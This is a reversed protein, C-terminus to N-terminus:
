RGMAVKAKELLAPSFAAFQKLLTMVQDPTVPDIDLGAKTAEALFQPDKM